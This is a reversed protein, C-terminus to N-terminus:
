ALPQTGAQMGCALPTKLCTVLKLCGRLPGIGAALMCACAFRPFAHQLTKAAYLTCTPSSVTLSLFLAISVMLAVPMMWIALLTAVCISPYAPDLCPM